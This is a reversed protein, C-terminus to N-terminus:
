GRHALFLQPENVFRVRCNACCFYYLTGGVDATHRATAMDVDMGCVPDLATAAAVASPSDMHTGEAQLRFGCSHKVLEALISLAIESPTRAGLDLGAPYRIADVGSVGSSELVKRITDGRKRSAVLGVYSVGCALLAELAEEDYHGQSAVVAAVEGGASRVTEQLSELPAVTVGPGSQATVDHLEGADVFRVVDYDLSVATRALAGAVPTAGVVVLRRAQVFPEIYVDVAGESACTMPAFVHEPNSAAPEPPDPSITVLRAQRARLSELAQKKVIERACAGGVFGEMRGDPYVLARDGLHASIPARRGVVTAVAFAQRDRGLAAVKEFFESARNSM